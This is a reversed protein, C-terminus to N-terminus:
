APERVKFTRVVVMKEEEACDLEYVYPIWEVAEPEGHKGGGYWYTWGIWSGDAMKAAVAKSEYHRSYECPLGTEVEGGRLESMADQLEYDDNSDSFLADVTEATIAAPDISIAKFDIAKLLVACKIKKEPTM